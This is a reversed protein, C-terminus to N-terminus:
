SVTPQQAAYEAVTDLNLEIGLGPGLPVSFGGDHMDLPTQLIGALPNAGAWYESIIFNPAAAAVHMSAVFEVASGISIHPAFPSGFIDALEAIRVSETIGIKIVEPQVAIRGGRALIEKYLATTWVLDNAVTIPLLGSLKVYGEIDEPPLPAEFWGVGREALAQGLWLAHPFDYSGLADVLILVHAGVVERVIDVSRLDAARGFGIGIKVASFGSDIAARAAVKLRDVAAEGQEEPLGPLSSYYVRIADRYRGGLLDCIPRRSAKGVLDWLAIDIGAAAEQHFGQLHGRGRMLAYMRDWLVRTAFPDEGIVAHSLYGDIYEKVLEPVIVGKSEGYGVTGDDTTIAVLCTSISDAWRHRMRWRLPYGSSLDEGTPVSAQYDGGWTTKGWYSKPFPARLITVDVDVVKM